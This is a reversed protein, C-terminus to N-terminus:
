RADPHGPAEQWPFPFQEHGGCLMCSFDGRVSNEATAAPACIHEPIYVGDYHIPCLAWCRLRILASKSYSQKGTLLINTCIFPWKFFHLFSKSSNVTM